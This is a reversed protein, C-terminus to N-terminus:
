LPYDQLFGVINIIVSVFTVFTLHFYQYILFVLVLIGEGWIGYFLHFCRFFCFSITSVYCGFFASCPRERQHYSNARESWFIISTVSTSVHVYKQGQLKVRLYSVLLLAQVPIGSSLCLWTRLLVSLLVIILLLHFCSLHGDITFHIFFNHFPIHCLM